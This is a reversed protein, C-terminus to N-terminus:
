AAALGVDSAQMLGKASAGGALVAVVTAVDDWPAGRQAGKATRDARAIAAVLWRASAPSHRRAAAVM